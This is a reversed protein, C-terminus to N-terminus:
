TMMGLPAIPMPRALASIVNKIEKLNVDLETIHVPLGYGQMTEIMDKPQPPKDVSIHMQLGLGDILGKAKLQDVLMKNREIPDNDRAYSTGRGNRAHNDYDNLLLKAQPDVERATQFAIEVYEAGIVLKWYDGSDAGYFRFPENAVVWERIIGKFPTMLDRIHQKMLEIAQAKKIRGQKLGDILWAPELTPFMLPHGRLDTVGVSKLAAAQRQLESLSDPNPKGQEQEWDSWYFNSHLTALNFDRAYIDMQAARSASSFQRGSVASGWRLKAKNALERLGALPPTVSTTTAQPPRQPLTRRSVPQTQCATVVEAIALGAGARLMQRRSLNTKNMM